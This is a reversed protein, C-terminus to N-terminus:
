AVPPLASRDPGRHARYPWVIHLSTGSLVRESLAAFPCVVVHADRIFAVDEGLFVASLRVRGFEAYVLQSHKEGDEYKVTLVVLAAQSTMIRVARALEKRRRFGLHDTFQQLLMCNVNRVAEGLLSITALVDLEVPESARGIRRIDRTGAARLHRVLELVAADGM